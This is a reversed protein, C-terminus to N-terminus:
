AKQRDRLGDLAKNALKDAKKNLSRVIFKIDFKDFKTIAYRVLTNFVQLMPEKVKYDGNLQKVVLESDTSLHIVKAGRSIAEVLALLLASYEAVNNTCKGIVKSETYIDKGSSDQIVMGVAAPGPNGRAAGDTWIWLESQKTM